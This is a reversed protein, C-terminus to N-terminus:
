GRSNVYASTQYPKKKRENYSIRKAESVANTYSTLLDKGVEVDGILSHAMSSALRLSLLIVFNPSFITTDKVKYTYEAYATINNSCIVKRNNVVQFAVEFEETDKSKITSENYVTWVAAAQTPYVYIYQWELQLVTDTVGVLAEAVNAFPWKYDSFVADRSPDFFYNCARVSPNDETLSTIANMGLHSLALNCIDVKTVM